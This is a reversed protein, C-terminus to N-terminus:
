GRSAGVFQVLGFTQQTIGTFGREALLEPLEDRDFMRIGSVTGFQSDLARAPQWGRRASTLLALRGGPQLLEAYSALAAEADDFLHLAAFCCVADFSGAPFPPRVADARLYAVSANDPTEGAARHLMTRSADLGVALGRAGVIEAFARTFAGTGCAVDLVVDGAGLGLLDVAMGYEQGMSPGRLGKALWGLTPRWYREYVGSVAQVRMLRQAIGTSPGAQPAEGLLDIYGKPDVSIPSVPGLLRRLRQQAAVRASGQVMGRGYRRAV